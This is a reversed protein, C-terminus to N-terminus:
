EDTQSSSGCAHHIFLSLSLSIILLLFFCSTSEGCLWCSHEGRCVLWLLVCLAHAAEPWGSEKAFVCLHCLIGVLFTIGYRDCIYFSSSKHLTFLLHHVQEDSTIKYRPICLACICCVFVCAAHQQSDSLIAIIHHYSNLIFIFVEPSIINDTSFIIESKDM